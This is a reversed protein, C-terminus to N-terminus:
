VTLVDGNNDTSIGSTTSSKARNRRRRRPHTPSASLGRSSASDPMDPISLSTDSLISANRMIDRRLPTPKLIEEDMWRHLAKHLKRFKRSERKGGGPHIHGQSGQIVRQSTVHHTMDQDAMMIEFAKQVARNKANPTKPNVASEQLLDLMSFTFLSLKSM